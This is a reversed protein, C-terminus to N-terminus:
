KLIKRKIIEGKPIMSIDNWSRQEDFDGTAAIIIKEKDEYIVIGITFQQEAFLREGEEIAEALNRWQTKFGHIDRWYVIEIKDKM